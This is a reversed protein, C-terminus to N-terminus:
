LYVELDAKSLAESYQSIYKPLKSFVTVNKQTTPNLFSLMCAHLHLRTDVVQLENDVKSFRMYKKDGLIPAGLYCACLARIQHKAGTIPQFIVNQKVTEIESNRRHLVQLPFLKTRTKNFYKRNSNTNSVNDASTAPRVGYQTTMLDCIALYGEGHNCSSPIRELDLGRDEIEFPIPDIPNNSPALITGIYLKNVSRERFEASFHRAAKRNKAFMLCGSTSKDLRHLVHLKADGHADDTSNYQISLEDIVSTTSKTGRHVAIEAPKDIVLVDNDEYLIPFKIRRTKIARSKSAPDVYGQEIAKVQTEEKLVFDPNFVRVQMNSELRFNNRNSLPVRKGEPCTVKVHKKRICKNVFSAPNKFKSLLFNDLRTGSEADEVKFTRKESLNSMNAVRTCLTLHWRVRYNRFSRLYMLPLRAAGNM